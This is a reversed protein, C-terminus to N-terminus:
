SMSRYQESGADNWYKRSVPEILVGPFEEGIYQVLLSSPLNSLSKRLSPPKESRSFFVDPVLVLSPSHIHMQHLTKVYTQCDALKLACHILM